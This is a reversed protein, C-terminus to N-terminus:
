LGSSRLSYNMAPDIQFFHIPGDGKVVSSTTFGYSIDATVDRLDAIQWGIPLTNM